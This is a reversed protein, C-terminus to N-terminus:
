LGLTASLQWNWKQHADVREALFNAIGQENAENALAFAELSSTIMQANIRLLSTLMELSSGGEIREEKICSLDAFDELLYPADFGLKRINEAVPDIAGDYDGYIDAFFEHYERFDSGKVNWHYGHALFKAVVLDGLYKALAEATPIVEPNM